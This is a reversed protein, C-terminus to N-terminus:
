TPRFKTKEERLGRHGLLSIGVVLLIQVIRDILMVSIMDAASIHLHSVLLWIIFEKVGLNAPTLSVILSLSSFIALFAVYLLPLNLNFTEFLVSFALVQFPMSLAALTMIYGIERYDTEVFVSHLSTLWTKLRQPMRKSLALGYIAGLLTICFILSALLLTWYLLPITVDAVFAAWIGLFVGLLTTTFIVLLSLLAMMGVSITIPVQYLKQYLFAKGTYYGIRLVTVYGLLSSHSNIVVMQWLPAHKGRKKLLECAMAAALLYFMLYSALILFLDTLSLEFIRALTSRNFWCFGLTFLLLASLLIRQAHQKIKEM